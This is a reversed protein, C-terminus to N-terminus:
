FVNYFSCMILVNTKPKRLHKSNIEFGLGVGNVHNCRAHAKAWTPSYTQVTHAGVKFM